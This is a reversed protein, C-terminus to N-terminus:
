GRAGRKGQLAVLICFLIASRQTCFPSMRSLSANTGSSSRKGPTDSGQGPCSHKSASVLIAPETELNPQLPTAPMISRQGHQKHAAHVTVTWVRCHGRAERGAVM